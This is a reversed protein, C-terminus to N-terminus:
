PAAVWTATCIVDETMTATANPSTTTCDSAPQGSWASFVATNGAATASLTLAAGDNFTFTGCVGNFPGTVSCTPTQNPPSFGDASSTIHVTYTGVDPTVVNVILTHIIPATITIDFSQGAASITLTGANGGGTSSGPVGTTTASGVACGDVGTLHDFTGTNPTGDVSGTGGTPLNYLFGVPVGRLPIGLADTVCATVSVTTDGVMTQPSVVLTAPAVGPYVLTGADVVSRHGGTINDTGDGQAWIAVASGVTNVTYNLTTHAVGIDNTTEPSGINGHQARGILYPL